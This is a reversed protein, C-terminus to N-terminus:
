EDNGGTIKREIARTFARVLEGTTGLSHKECAVRWVADIEEDTLPQRTPPAAADIDERLRDTM